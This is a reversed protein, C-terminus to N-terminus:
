WGEHFKCDDCIFLDPLKHGYGVWKELPKVYGVYGCMACEVQMM